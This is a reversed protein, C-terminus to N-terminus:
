IGAGHLFIDVADSAATVAATNGTNGPYVATNDTVAASRSPRRVGTLTPEFIPIQQVREIQKELSALKDRLCKIAEAEIDPVPDSVRVGQRFIVRGPVGVVICDDPVEKLLISGSAVQVNNGVAFGGLIQAGSGVVVSNGLTPHRKTDRSLAGMRAAAQAGLTVGQYLVCDDGVEATEGIVVGLGHDIFLRRGIKAGPHIEIGTLFRGLQSISRAVVRLVKDNTTWFRHAIRYILVAHFGPYCLFVEARSRAAPDKMLINEIEERLSM